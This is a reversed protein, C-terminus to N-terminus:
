PYHINFFHIIYNNCNLVIIQTIGYILIKYIIFTCTTKRLANSNPTRGIATIDKAGILMPKVINSVASRSVGYSKAIQLHAPANEDRELLIFCRRIITKCTKKNNIPSHLITKEDDSLFIHYTRKRVMFVDGGNIKIRGYKVMFM